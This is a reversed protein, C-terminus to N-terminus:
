VEHHSPSHKPLVSPDFLVTHTANIKIEVRSGLEYVVDSPQTSHLPRGSALHVTYLNESGRFQRNVVIAPSEDSPVLLVDDPRIMVSVAMGTPFGSTNPFPGLETRVQLGDVAGPVFDAQGVFEAVFPTTPLHYVIEPTGLQELRGRNLVAVRDAMAFAEEHDHTVLVTTAGSQRLIADVEQRMRSRMDPDLNSFPEDLLVVIPKPALARALAVRQQQGGSLQHPYRGEMGALGVLELVEAVRRARDGRAQQHLGFSVNRAVTLHPFLAYDQFVMGVGRREPPVWCGNGAVCLGGLQVTGSTPDEFGAILRLLTTKGCGSPGLVALTHGRAVTLSLADIAPAHDPQYRKTVGVLEIVAGPPNHPTTPM